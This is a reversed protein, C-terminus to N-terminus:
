SAWSRSCGPLSAPWGVYVLMTAYGSHVLYSPDIGRQLQEDPSRLGLGLVHAGAADRGVELAEVRYELNSRARGVAGRVARAFAGFVVTAFGPDVLTVVAGVAILVAALAVVASRRPEVVRSAGRFRGSLVVVASSEPLM